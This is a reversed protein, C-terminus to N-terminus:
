DLDKGSQKVVYDYIMKSINAIAKNASQGNKVNKTMVVVIYPKEAYVIGVDHVVGTYNGTKHAIKLNKPLLVPLRDYFKTNIMNQVLERGWPDGNESLEYVEKLYMAMDRPCSVNKGDDVVVGGLRRMYEKVNAKGVYRLLMNVAVNDSYVISLRLLEKITFTKGFSENNWIIGTGGEFDEETYELSTMPDLMGKRIMDYVYLNLPIKFTSAAFFEETDNIGFEKGSELDVFYIGFYCNYKSIYKRLKNELAAYTDKKVQNELTNDFDNDLDEYYFPEGIDELYELEDNLLEDDFELSYLDDEVDYDTGYEYTGAYYAKHAEYNGKNYENSKMGMSALNGSYMVFAVGMFFTVVLVFYNRIKGKLIKCIREKVSNKKRICIIFM